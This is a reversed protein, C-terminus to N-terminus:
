CQSFLPISVRKMTSRVPKYLHIMKNLYTGFRYFTIVWLVNIIGLMFAVKHFHLCASM